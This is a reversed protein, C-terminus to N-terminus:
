TQEEVAKQLRAALLNCTCRGEWLGGLGYDLWVFKSLWRICLEKWPLERYINDAFAHLRIWVVWAGWGRAFVEAVCSTQSTPLMFSLCTHYKTDGVVSLFQFEFTQNSKEVPFFFFIHIIPFGPLLSPSPLSPKGTFVRDMHYFLVQFDLCPLFDRWCTGSFSRARMDLLGSVLSVELM